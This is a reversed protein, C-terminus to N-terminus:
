KLICETMSKCSEAIVKGYAASIFTVAHQCLEMSARIDDIACLSFQGKKAFYLAMAYGMCHQLPTLVLYDM